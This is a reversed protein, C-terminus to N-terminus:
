ARSCATRRRGPVRHRELGRRRLAIPCRPDAATAALTCMLLGTDDGDAYVRYATRRLRPLGDRLNHRVVHRLATRVHDVPLLHGLDLQHAWWQGILQDSLCGTARFDYTRATTSGPRLVRRELAARRVRRQRGRVPTRYRAGRGAHDGVLSPWRRAAGAARRALPHRHLHQRRALDIDHTIPQIAACCAPGDPDWKRAIHDILRRVRPWTGRWGTPAPGTGCRATPRSCPVSCATWRRTRPDASRRTGCSGAPVVPARVRHPIYGEPAQMVDWETERMNRELTPFLAGGGARLELRPHLEAPLLRRVHGNWMATSAGLSARSASSGATPPRRLVDPQAGALAAGGDPRGRARRPRQGGPDADM